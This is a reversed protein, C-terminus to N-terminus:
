RWNRFGSKKRQIPIAGRYVSRLEDGPFSSDKVAAKTRTTRRVVRAPRQAAAKRVTVDRAIVLFKKPRGDEVLLTITIDWWKEGARSADSLASLSAYSRQEADKLAQM